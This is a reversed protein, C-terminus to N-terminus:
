AALMALCCGGCNILLARGAASDSSRLSSRYRVWPRAAPLAIAGLFLLYRSQYLYRRAKKFVMVTSALSLLYIMFASMFPAAARMCPYTARSPKPLVRFLFWVTSLIGIGFFILRSYVRGKIKLFDKMKM